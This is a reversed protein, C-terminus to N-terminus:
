ILQKFDASLTAVNLSTNRTIFRSRVPQKQVGTRMGQPQDGMPQLVLIVM